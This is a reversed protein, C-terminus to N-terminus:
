KIELSINNRAYAWISRSTYNVYYEYNTSEFTNALRTIERTFFFATASESFRDRTNVDALFLFFILDADLLM